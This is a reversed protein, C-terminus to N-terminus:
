DEQSKLIKDKLEDLTDHYYVRIKKETLISKLQDKKLKHLEDMKYKKVKVKPKDEVEKREIVPAKHTFISNKRNNDWIDLYETKKKRKEYMNNVETLIKSLRINDNTILKDFSLKDEYKKIFDLSLNQLASVSFWDLYFAHKDLFNVPLQYFTCLYQWDIDEIHNPVMNLSFYPSKTVQLWDYKSMKDKNKKIFSVLEKNTGIDRIEWYFDTEM